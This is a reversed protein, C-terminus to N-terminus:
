INNISKFHEMNIIEKHTFDSIILTRLINWTLIMNNNHTTHTHTM